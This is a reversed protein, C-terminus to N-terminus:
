DVVGLAEAIAEEPSLAQGAAFAAAWQEEGLASQAPAIARSWLARQPPDDVYGRREDEAVKAGALRAAREHEGQLASAIALVYVCEWNWMSSAIGRRREFWLAQLVQARARVWDGRHVAVVALNAHAGMEHYPSGSRRALDLSEDALTAARDINGAAVLPLIFNEMVTLITFISDSQDALALAEEVLTQGRALDGRGLANMALFNRAVAVWPMDGNTHAIGEVEHWLADSRELNGAVGVQNGLFGLAHMRAVLVDRSRAGGSVAILAAHADEAALMDELWRAGERLHGTSVWFGAARAALRLGTEAEAEGRERAWSLTARLNDHERDWRAFWWPGEPGQLNSQELQALFYAAHARRLAEAEGSAELQELAFERMVHLM